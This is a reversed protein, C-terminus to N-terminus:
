IFAACDFCIIPGNTRETTFIDNHFCDLSNYIFQATGHRQCNTAPKKGHPSLNLVQDTQKPIITYYVASPGNNSHTSRTEGKLM